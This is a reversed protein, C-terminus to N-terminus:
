ADVLEAVSIRYDQLDVTKLQNVYQTAFGPFMTANFGDETLYWSQCGSNWTTSQLRRQIDDNYRQQVEPRVDLSKWGFRLLSGIAQTIYDIQAEMYVLASSHGPGSNPGFTFFLNPYGSVAVSRYAYAGSSWEAALDRGGIGTVPFPTGAKSVDFGTAFVIADFQHEIGEVTRVGRPSLRAIPWTVLKCNDAQLAPYYDSTMLLRKCGASFDPTLQRRLWSDKVQMRLHARSLAEVVRTLPTDWVVGLAVSEHGWFWASRVAKEALPLRRYLGKARDGTATNLRPLVWGPTRQFVKVSDAVKVLEPIIQVGSAGTGIVAVKKGTFDYDHDWRASHIKAGEFTEIGRIDPLSANALPGPAMVVTRARVPEQERFRITWVGQSEDYELGTVEHGFRIRPALGHTDVMRDIYGLIEASGSYTHSWDPNPAFSYSYLRSPIDCAAGPYTNDRWTGGVRSDREFIVVDDVGEQLLRIAAGIGAFGAGIIAVDSLGASM